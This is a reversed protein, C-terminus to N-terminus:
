GNARQLFRAYQRMQAFVRVATEPFLYAPMQRYQLYDITAEVETKSGMVSFYVPKIPHTKIMDVLPDLGGNISMAFAIFFIGHVEDDELLARLVEQTTKEFGHVNMDPYLDVPNIRKSLTAIVRSLKAQTEECFVTVGLGEDVATDITMIAQAGSYTICAINDGEPLPMWQFGMLAALLEDVRKMRLVGAQQLAGDLVGDDVALSATHSATARSGPPTRGGKLLLVPKQSSARHAAELFKRGDRIDELYMGIIRTYEDQCLYELSECEEVDVKNGLGLGKSLRFVPFSGLYQLLAGVFIGSQSAFGVGGPSIMDTSAFYSTTLGTRTNVLGLTNPGFGRMGSSKLIRHIENQIVRGEEGSEAFGESSIVVGKVGRDACAAVAGPVASPPIIMSALDVPFPVETVSRYLKYGHVEGGKPNIGAAQGQFGTRRLTELLM